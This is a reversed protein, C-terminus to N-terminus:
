STWLCSPTDACLNKLVKLVTVDTIDFDEVAKKMMLIVEGHKLNM